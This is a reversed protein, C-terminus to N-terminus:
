DRYKGLGTNRVRPLLGASWLLPQDGANERGQAGGHGNTHQEACHRRGWNM